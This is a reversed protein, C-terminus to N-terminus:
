CYTGACQDLLGHPILWMALSLLAPRGPVAQAIGSCLDAHWSHAMGGPTHTGKGKLGPINCGSFFSSPSFAFITQTLGSIAIKFRFLCFKREKALKLLIGGVCM